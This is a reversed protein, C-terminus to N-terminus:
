SSVEFAKQHGACRGTDTAYAACPNGKKTLESCLLGEVKPPKAREAQIQAWSKEPGGRTWFNSYAGM